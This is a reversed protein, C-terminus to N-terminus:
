AAQYRHIVHEIRPGQGGFALHVMRVHAGPEGVIEELYGGKKEQGVVVTMGMADRWFRLSRELSSITLGAHHLSPM